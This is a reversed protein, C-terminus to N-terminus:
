RVLTAICVTPSNTTPTPCATEGPLGGSSTLNLSMYHGWIRSDQGNTDRTAPPVPENIPTAGSTCSAPAPDWGTVYFGAFGVIPINDNPSWPEGVETYPVVILRPDGASIDPFSAWDNTSCVGGPAWRDNMADRVNNNIGNASIDLQCTYGTPCSGDDIAFNQGCGNLVADAMTQGQCRFGGGLVNDNAQPTLRLVWPLEGVQGATFPDIQLELGIIKPAGGQNVTQPTLALNAIAGQNGDDGATVYFETTEASQTGRDALVLVDVAGHDGIDGDGAALDANSTSIWNSVGGGPPPPSVESLLISQSGFVASVSRPPEPGPGPWAPFYVQASIGVQCDPSRRGMFHPNNYACGISTLDVRQVDINSGGSQSFASVFGIDEYEVTDSSPGSGCNGDTNAQGLVITASAGDGGIPLGPSTVTWRLSGAPALTQLIEGGNNPQDPTTDWRVWACDTLRPDAAATPRLGSTGELTQLAVRATATIAPVPVGFGGFLTAVNKEVAKVDTWYGGNPTGFDGTTHNFCPNGGDTYDADDPSTANIRVTTRSPDNIDTNVAPKFQAPVTVDADLTSDGAYQKARWTIRQALAPDGVCAPFITGYEVAAALAAADVRNQLKRKHVFWNGIDLALAAVMIFTAVSVAFIVLVSGREDRARAGARLTVRRATDSM